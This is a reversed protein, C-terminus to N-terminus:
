ETKNGTGKCTHIPTKNSSTPSLCLNLLPPLKTSIHHQLSNDKVIPHPSSVLKTTIEYYPIIPFVIKEKRNTITYYQYYKCKCYPKGGWWFMIFIDYPRTYMLPLLQCIRLLFFGRAFKMKCHHESVCVLCRIGICHMGDCFPVDYRADVVVNQKACTSVTTNSSITNKKYSM